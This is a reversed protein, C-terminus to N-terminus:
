NVGSNCNFIIEDFEEKTPEEYQRLMGELIKFDIHKGIKVRAENRAYIDGVPVVCVVATKKYSEPVESLHDSRMKRKLHTLDLVINEKRELAESLRKRTIDLIDMSYPKALKFSEGYTEAPYLELMTDDWSIRTYDPYHKDAFTTKGSNPIGILTIIHNKM